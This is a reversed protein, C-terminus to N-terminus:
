TFKGSHDRAIKRAVNRDMKQVAGALKDWTPPGSNDMDHNGRLWESSMRMLKDDLNAENTNITDLRSLPIGM